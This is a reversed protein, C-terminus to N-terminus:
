SLWAHYTYKARAYECNLKQYIRIINVNNLQTELDMMDHLPLQERMATELITPYAGLGESTCGGLGGGVVNVGTSELIDKNTKYGLFGVIKGRREALMIGDAIGGTLLKEAWQQYLYDCKENPLHPDAHYRGFFNRYSELAVRLVEEHDEPRYPRTTFLPKFHGLEQRAPIFIYTVISDVLYFANGELLHVLAIDDADLRINLHRFGEKRCAEMMTEILRLNVKAPSSRGRHVFFSIQGMQIGFISSDWPLPRVASVATIKAGEGAVWAKGERVSKEFLHLLYAIQKERTIIRYRRLDNYPYEEFLSKLDERDDQRYPRAFIDGM